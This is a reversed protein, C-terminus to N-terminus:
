CHVFSCDESEFSLLGILGKLNTIQPSLAIPNMKICTSITIRYLYKNKKIIIPNLLKDKSMLVYFIFRFSRQKPIYLFYGSM